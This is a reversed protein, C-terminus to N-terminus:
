GAPAPHLADRIGDGILNIAIVIVMLVLCPLSFLWPRTEAASVGDAVLRGLSTDNGKVGYGLYTLISEDIVSTASGLTAWVVISGLSNPLLHVFIIRRDSAGLARAAEVFERQRLSLLEGRLVRALGMWGFLGLFMAVGIPSHIAPFRVAVVIIVVLTPLTLIL